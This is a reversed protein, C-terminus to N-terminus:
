YKFGLKDLGEQVEPASMFLDWLLGSRHNEIMCIIPGQDIALYSNAYWGVSPNFADYFGYEGWLRDGMIYYFFRLAQLSEEPTYPFSSLAATPTIVGLDNDPSHASYGSPGDSATLGWCSESYLLFNRPNARCYARNILTHNVNQEWYNAYQDELNRPDLGLFSYHSFFLPGGRDNRLPLTYGFHSLGSTNVMGGNRAWGQEYVSPEISHTSSSAALVYVILSENWGRVQLDKEWGFNPSWHWYLVDQGGQTFWDWEVESILRNIRGMITQEDPSTPALYQRVTLLAQVMFATEVLDAGDDNASFPITEGTTGHLWHSWAGHFRQAKNELFRTITELREVGEERSIFGREMGVLISMIGFGSGGITVLEGSTNRERALGSVPHGFDWFYRFTQRQVQTLLEEDPIEPFKFTSDVRTFFEVNYGDFPAGTETTLEDTIELEYQTLHALPNRFTLRFLSRNPSGPEAVFGGSGNLKLNALLLDVNVEESFELELELSIAVDQFSNQGLRDQGNVKLSILSLDAPTTQFRFSLDSVVGGGIGEIQDLRLEYSENFKLGGIPSIVMSRNENTLALSVNAPTGSGDLLSVNNIADPVVPSSFRLTILRDIPIDDVTSTSSLPIDGVFAGVLALDLEDETCSCAAFLLCVTLSRIVWTKM